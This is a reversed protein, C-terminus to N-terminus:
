RKPFELKLEGGEQFKWYGERPHTHINEPVVSMNYGGVCSIDQSM